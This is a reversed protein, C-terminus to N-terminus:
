SDEQSDRTTASTQVAYEVKDRFATDGRSHWTAVHLSWVGDTDVLLVSVRRASALVAIALCVIGTFLFAYIFPVSWDNVVSVSAWDSVQAVRLRQGGPLDLAEGEALVVPAGFSGAGSTATEVVARSLQSPSGSAGTQRLLVRVRARVGQQGEGTLTFEQPVVGRSAETGRQLTFTERVIEPGASQELALTVAPGIDVMHLTLTGTRLPNNPRVWGQAVPVGDKYATVFPTPGYDVGNLRYARDLESAVFEIGTHRERFLPGDNVTLYNAHVDAVREALPLALLGESRTARSVAPQGM